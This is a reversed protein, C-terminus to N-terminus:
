VELTCQLKKGVLTKGNVNQSECLFCKYTQTDFIKFRHDRMNLSLEAGKFISFIVSTRIRVNSQLLRSFHLGTVCREKVIDPYFM